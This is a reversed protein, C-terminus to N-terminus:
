SRSCEYVFLVPAGFQLFHLSRSCGLVGIWPGFLSAFLLAAAALGPGVDSDFDWINV